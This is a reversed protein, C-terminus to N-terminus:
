GTGEGWVYCIPSSGFPPIKTAHHHRPGRDRHLLTSKWPTAAHYSYVGAEEDNRYEQEGKRYVSTGYEQESYALDMM